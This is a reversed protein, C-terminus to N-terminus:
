VDGAVNVIAADNGDDFDDDNVDGKSLEDVVVVASDKDVDYSGVDDDVNDNVVDDVVVDLLIM